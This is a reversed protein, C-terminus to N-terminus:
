TAVKSFPPVHRAVKEGEHFHPCRNFRGLLWIAYDRRITRWGWLPKFYWWM